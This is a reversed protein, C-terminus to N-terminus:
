YIKNIILTKHMKIFHLKINKLLKANKNGM